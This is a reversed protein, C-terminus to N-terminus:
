VDEEIIFFDVNIIKLPSKQDNGSNSMYLEGDVDVIELEVGRSTKITDGAKVLKGNSDVM